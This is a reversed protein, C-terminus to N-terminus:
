KLEEVQEVTLRLAKAIDEVAVVIKKFELASKLKEALKEAEAKAREELRGKEMGEKEAYAITANYVRKQELSSIYSM